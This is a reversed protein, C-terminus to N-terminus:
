QKVRSLSKIKLLVLGYEYGDKDTKIPEGDKGFNIGLFGNNPTKGIGKDKLVATQTAEDWVFNFGAGPTLNYSFNSLPFAYVISRNGPEVPYLEQTELSLSGTVPDYVKSAVLTDEGVIISAQLKKTRDISVKLYVEDRGEHNFKWTGVWFTVPKYGEPIVATLKLAGETFTNADKNWKLSSYSKGKLVLPTQLEVTNTTFSVPMSVNQGDVIFSARGNKTDIIASGVEDNDNISVDFRGPLEMKLNLISDMREQWNVNDPLRKMVMKNGWKNGKLVISDKSTHLMLFEYDGEEGDVNRPYALALEHMIANYTSFTLVPGENEKIEYKSTTTSDAPVFDSTVTAKGNKFKIFFTYGGKTYDRGTFYHLEWGGEASELLAKNAVVSTEIRESASQSFLDKEDTACAVFLMAVFALVLSTIKNKM